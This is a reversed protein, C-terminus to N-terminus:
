RCRPFQKELQADILTEGVACVEVRKVTPFQKATKEIADLFIFPGLSGYNTQNAPQSFKVIATGNKLVVGEFKMGFTASGFEKAAEDATPGQFLEELTPRLPANAAVQRQVAQLVFNKGPQEDNVRWLYIKVYKLGADLYEMTPKNYIVKNQLIRKLDHTETKYPKVNAPRAPFANKNQYFSPDRDELIKEWDDQRYFALTITDNKLQTIEAWQRFFVEGRKPDVVAFYSGGLGGDELRVLLATRGNKLRAESLGTVFYYHSMIKRSKGTAADYVRLSQGENEYGGAGDPGSFVVERGDNIIWADIAEDSIKRKGGGGGITIYLKGGNHESGDAEIEFSVAKQGFAPLSFIGFAILAILFFLNRKM